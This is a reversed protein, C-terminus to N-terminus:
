SDKILEYGRAADEAIAESFAGACGLWKMVRWPVFNSSSKLKESTM